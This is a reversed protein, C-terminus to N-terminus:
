RQWRWPTRAFAPAESPDRATERELQGQLTDLEQRSQEVALRSREETQRLNEAAYAVAKELAERRPTM